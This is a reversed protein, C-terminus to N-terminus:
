PTRQYATTRGDPRFGVSAYLRYAANPNETHVTLAAEQMGRERLAHLSRVLLARALGRRRWPRRVAINETYGRLRGQAANDAADIFSLVQGVVEDGEWAVRWLSPDFHPFALWRDYDGPQPEVAGWHDRFAEVDAEWIARYHAPEVPRVEMGEPLPAEPIDELTPRLMRAHYAVPRYGAAEYLAQKGPETQEAQALLLPSEHGQEVSVAGLRAEQWGLIAEEIGRGQWAPMLYFFHYHMVKGDVEQWWMVRGYGVPDGGVAAVISDRPLESNRLNAYDRTLSEVTATFDLQGADRCAAVIAAMAPYDREGRLPRFGLGPVEPVELRAMSADREPTM